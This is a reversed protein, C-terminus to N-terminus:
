DLYDLIVKGHRLMAALDYAKALPAMGDTTRFPRNCECGDDHCVIRGSKGQHWQWATHDPGMDNHVHRGDSDRLSNWNVKHGAPDLAKCHESMGRGGPNHGTAVEYAAALGTYTEWKGEPILRILEETLDQNM